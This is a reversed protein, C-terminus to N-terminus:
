INMLVKPVFSTNNLPRSSDLRQNMRIRCVDALMIQVVRLINLADHLGNHHQGTLSLGLDQLMTKLHSRRERPLRYFSHFITSINIWELAWNPMKMNSLSCQLHMFRAMDAWSDCVVAFRKESLYHTAFMWIQLESLLTPFDVAANIVDQTIGTLAQCFASLRPNKLPKCYKHFIGVCKRRRTDYLIVPFEIIEPTFGSEAGPSRAVSEDQCTAELDIILLHDYHSEPTLFTPQHLKIMPFENRNTVSATKGAPTAKLRPFPLRDGLVTGVSPGKYEGGPTRLRRVFKRLRKHLILRSGRQNLNQADLCRRLNDRDM